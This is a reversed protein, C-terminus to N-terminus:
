LKPGLRFNCNNINSKWVSVFLFIFIVFALITSSVLSDFELLFGVSNHTYTGELTQMHTWKYANGSSYDSGMLTLDFSM